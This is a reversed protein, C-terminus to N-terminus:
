PVCYQQICIRGTTHTLLVSTYVYLVSTFYVFLLDCLFFHYTPSHSVAAASVVCLFCYNPCSSGYRTSLHVYGTIFCLGVSREMTSRLLVSVGTSLWPPTPAMPERSIMLTPHYVCAANNTSIRNNGGPGNLPLEGSDHTHRGKHVRLPERTTKPTSHNNIVVPSKTCM